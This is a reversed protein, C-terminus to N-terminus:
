NPKDLFKCLEDFLKGFVEKANKTTESLFEKKLPEKHKKHSIYVQDKVTKSYQLTISTVGHALLTRRKNLERLHKVITKDVLKLKNAIDIKKGLTMGLFLEDAVRDLIQSKETIIKTLLLEVANIHAFARGYERLMKPYKEIIM